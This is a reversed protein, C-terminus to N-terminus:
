IGLCLKCRITNNTDKAGNAELAVGILSGAGGLTGNVNVTVATAATVAAAQGATASSALTAGAAVTNAGINVRAVGRIQVLMPAGSAWTPGGMQAVVGIVTEDNATTTTNALLGTVDVIVVDGYTRTAGSNNTLEIYLGDDTMVTSGGVTVGSLPLGFAGTPNAIGQPLPM